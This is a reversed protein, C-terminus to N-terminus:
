MRTLARTMKMNLRFGEVCEEIGHVPRDNRERGDAVAVEVGGGVHPAGDGHDGREHADGDDGQGRADDGRAHEVLQAASPDAVSTCPSTHGRADTSGAGEELLRM